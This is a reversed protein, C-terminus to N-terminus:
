KLSGQAILEEIRKQRYAFIKNVDSSIWSGLMLKGIISVPVRYTIEDRLLCGGPVSEFTHLHHWKTYPGKIQEDIFLINEKWTSILTEWGVPVGHIKLKYKIVSGQKIEESSKSVIKFNLWPPTLTELNEARSFFPFIIEPKLPVFQDKYLFTDLAHSKGLEENLASKLDPFLFQFGNQLASTPRVQLSSNIVHSVEGLVTDLVFRPVFGIKPVKKIRSLHETFEKNQVPNPSVGNLPGSFTEYKIAHVILRTVDKIHIWSMWMKGDSIQVPPMKALAGGERSLVLGTRLLVVRIGLKEADLAEKEWDKCLDALFDNGPESQEDVPQSREYGYYGIASGSILVRPRRNPPLAKLSAILNKTGTIRSEVIRKKQEQSWPKEAINEGALHVVADVNAFADLAPQNEHTWKFIQNQPLMKFSEPNRVLANIQFGQQLSFRILNKGILGNAGSVLLRM